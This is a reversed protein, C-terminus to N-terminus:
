GPSSREGRPTDLRGEWPGADWGPHTQAAASLLAALGEPDEADVLWQAAGDLVSAEPATRLREAVRAADGTAHAVAAYNDPRMPNDLRGRDFAVLAAETAGRGLQALGLLNYAEADEGLVDLYRQAADAAEDWRELELCASARVYHRAPLEFLSLAEDGLADLRRLADEHEELAIAATARSVVAVLRFSRPLGETGLADLDAAVRRIQAADDVPLAALREVLEALRMLRPGDGPAETRSLPAATTESLRLGLDLDEADWWRLGEGDHYLWWRWKVTLRDRDIMRLDVILNGAGDHDIRRIETQVVAPDFLEVMQADLEAELASRPGPLLRRQTTAEVADLMREVAIMERIAEHDGRSAADQLREVFAEVESDLARADEPVAAPVEDIRDPAPEPVVPPDASAPPPDRPSGIAIGLLVAGGALVLGAAIRRRM